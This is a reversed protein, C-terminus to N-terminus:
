LTVKPPQCPERLAMGLKLEHCCTMFNISFSTSFSDWLHQLIKLQQAWCMCFVRYLISMKYESM